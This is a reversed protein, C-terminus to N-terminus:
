SAEQQDTIKDGKARKIKETVVDMIEKFKQEIKDNVADVLEDTKKNIIKRAKSDKGPAWLAGIAAGAALGAVVGLFIKGANM